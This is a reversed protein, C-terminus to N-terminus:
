AIYSTHYDHPPSPSAPAPGSPFPPHDFLASLLFPHTSGLHLLAPSMLTYGIIIFPIQQLRVRIMLSSAPIRFLIANVFSAAISLPVVHFCERNPHVVRVDELILITSSYTAFSIHAIRRGAQASHGPTHPSM